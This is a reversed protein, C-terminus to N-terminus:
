RAFFAIVLIAVTGMAMGMAYWRVHGTQMRRLTRYGFMAVQGLDRVPMDVVDSKSKRTLWQFPRVFLRDYALDFGMGALCLRPLFGQAPLRSRHPGYLLYALALGLGFAASACLATITETIPGIHVEELPPL